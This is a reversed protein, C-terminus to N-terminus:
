KLVDGKAAHTYMLVLRHAVHPDGNTWVFALKGNDGAYTDPSVFSIVVLITVVYKLKM